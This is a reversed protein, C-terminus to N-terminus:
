GNLKTSVRPDGKSYQKKDSPISDHDYEDTTKM